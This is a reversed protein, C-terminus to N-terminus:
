VSHFVVAFSTELGLSRVSLRLPALIHRIELGLTAGGNDHIDSESQMSREPRPQQFRDVLSHHLPFELLSAQSDPPLARQRELEIAHVELVAQTNIEEYSVAQNDLQLRHISNRRNVDLLHQSVQLEQIQSQPQQEVEAFLGELPATAADNRLSTAPLQLM